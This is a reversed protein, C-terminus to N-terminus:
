VVVSNTVFCIYYLRVALDGSRLKKIVRSLFDAMVAVVFVGQVYFGERFEPAAGRSHDEGGKVGGGKIEAEGGGKIQGGELFIKGL